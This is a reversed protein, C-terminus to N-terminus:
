TNNKIHKIVTIFFGSPSRLFVSKSSKTEHVVNDAGFPNSFGRSTLLEVAEDLDDVNMRIAIITAPINLNQTIDVYFGDPSKMRISDYDSDNASTGETHHRKEFGLTEFLKVTEEADKTIILPNFSTIKM